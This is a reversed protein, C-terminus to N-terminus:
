EDSTGDFLHPQALRRLQVQIIRVLMCFMIVAGVMVGVCFTTFPDRM